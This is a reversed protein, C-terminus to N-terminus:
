NLPSTDVDRCWFVAIERTLGADVARLRNMSELAILYEPGGSTDDVAEELYLHPNAKDGNAEALARAQNAVAHLSSDLTRTHAQERVGTFAPVAFGALMGLALVAVVMELVTFAPSLRPRFDRARRLMTIFVVGLLLVGLFDTPPTPPLQPQWPTALTSSLSPCPDVVAQYVTLQLTAGSQIGYDSLTKSGILTQGLYSLTQQEPPIGDKDQILAQIAEVNDSSEVDLSLTAGNSRTIFIQMDNVTGLSGFGPLLRNVGFGGRSQFLLTMLFLFFGEGQSVGLHPTGTFLAECHQHLQSAHM